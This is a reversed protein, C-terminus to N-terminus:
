SGEETGLILAHVRKCRGAELDDGDARQIHVCEGRDRREV